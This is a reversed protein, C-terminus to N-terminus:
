DLVEDAKADAHVGLLRGGRYYIDVYGNRIELSLTDDHQVRQLIPRLVGSNFQEVFERGIGRRKGMENGKGTM